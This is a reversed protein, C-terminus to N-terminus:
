RQSLSMAATHDASFVHSVAASGTRETESENEKQCMIQEALQHRQKLQKSHPHKDPTFNMEGVSQHLFCMKTGTLGSSTQCACIFLRHKVQLSTFIQVSM